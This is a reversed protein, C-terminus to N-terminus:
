VWTFGDRMRRCLSKQLEEGSGDFGAHRVRTLALWRTGATMVSIPPCLRQGDGPDSRVGFTVSALDEGDVELALTTHDARAEDWLM